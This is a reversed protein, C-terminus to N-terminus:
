FKIRIGANIESISKIDDIEETLTSYHYMARLAMYKNFNFQLGIGLRLGDTEWDKQYTELKYKVYGLSGVFDIYESTPLRLVFDAGYGYLKSDKNYDNSTENSQQYFGEIGVGRFDFGLVASIMDYNDSAELDLERSTDIFTKYVDAGLVLDAQAPTSLNCVAIFSLTALAKKMPKRM